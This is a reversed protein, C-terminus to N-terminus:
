AGLPNGHDPRITQSKDRQQAGLGESWVYGLMAWPFGTLIYGRLMEGLAMAVAWAVARQWGPRSVAHAVGFGLAWFLSFGFASFVLAFPAMWGHRAVDVLFPEVIWHLTVAFYGAGCLWGTLAARRWGDAAFGLYACM